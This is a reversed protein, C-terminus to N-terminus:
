STPSVCVTQLLDQKWDGRAQAPNPVYVSRGVLVKGRGACNVRAGHKGEDLYEIEGSANQETLEIKVDFDYDPEVSTVVSTIILSVTVDGDFLSVHFPIREAGHAVPFSLIMGIAILLVVSRSM